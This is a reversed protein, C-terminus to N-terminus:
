SLRFVRERRVVILLGISLQPLGNEQRGITTLLTAVSKPQPLASAELEPGLALPDAASTHGHTM